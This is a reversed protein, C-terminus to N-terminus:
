YKPKTGRSTLGQDRMKERYVRMYARRRARHSLGVFEPWRQTQRPIGRATLGQAYLKARKQQDYAWQRARGHFLRYDPIVKDVTSNRFSPILKNSPGLVTRNAKPYSDNALLGQMAMAAFYERKTLGFEPTSGRCQGDTGFPRSFAADDPNTNM